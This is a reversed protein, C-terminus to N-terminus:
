ITAALSARWSVIRVPTEFSVAEASNM